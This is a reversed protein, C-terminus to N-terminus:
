CYRAALALRNNPPVWFLLKGSLHVWGDDSLFYEFSLAHSQTFGHFKSRLHHWESKLPEPFWGSKLFVEVFAADWLRVTCDTSGSMIQLGDPSFAVANVSNTHGRLPEGLSQGTEADWLRITNDYSSSVIQLGDPSFAVTTVLGTHGRLPEGLSQGTEANWLRITNDGSGSVIRLGDPSFAVALVAWIHGRLPSGLSQGNEVSWLRVTEDNSGSVIQSGDPSFAVANVSQTHGQLPEGLLQGTSVSWLRITKYNVWHTHGQLPDGSPQGTEANWLQITRQNWSSVIQSGDPSFAVATVSHTSGRLPEGVSEGTERNWLRITKDVSGSVMQLGGPSIAVTTVTDTHGHLSQGLSKGTEANWLRITHDNSGSVLRSGDPSFAVSTVLRTHGRLPEGLSQGSEVDWLRITHDDSGSVIQSGARSFAVTSVMRTHGRLPEGLPQGTEANWLRIETDYSGSVIRSSDPSFAVATVWDTHGSLPEGLTQGTDADWLRITSDYSGSVIRSGDPSFAVASVLRTHGLLPEGLPQGIEADWLRITDDNSGSAIKSGDPSFAVANVSGQHGRFPEGLSQGTEANWLRITEDNSGSAIQSGDPSFAVANVSGTHGRLPEGLSQGTEADWLRITNDESGSLIRLGDPSFAIATVSKTHGRLAEPLGRYREERGNTVNLTNGHMTLGEIHLTSRTPTFPLASIYIHPASEQIPVSFAMMFQRLDTIRCKTEEETTNHIMARLGDIARSVGGVFSLVEMWYLAYPARIIQEIKNGLKSRWEIDAQAIHFPWHLSSYRLNRRISRSIRAELDLFDRNRYFSSEVGCINFKLGEKRSELNNFCWSSLQGHANHIDIYVKNPSRSQAICRRRLYEVLTPHRFQITKTTKDEILVSGLSQVLAKASGGIGTHQLIDDLDYVTPPEFAALLLALMNCLMANHEPPIRELILKYVDDIDGTQDASILRDYIREHSELTAENNLMRCATSAWIFLGSSKEILRQRKDQPLVTYLSQHVYAAIDDVNDRHKIDHLRDELKSKISLPRLVSEIVPDPRSTIFIKVNRSEQVAKALTDLLERRQPGSKCEDIADVILVVREQRHRLPDTILTRFQKELSSRMISPNRKVTDAVHPALEPIHHVLDQWLRVSHGGLTRETRCLTAVSMAVTSKGSGAIDCLWFIPKDSTDDEAWNRITQLVAQRTGQLCTTHVSSPVFAVMPLQFIFSADVDSKTAKTNREIVQVRHGIFLDLAAMFQRHRDEIEQNFKVIMGADIRVDGIATFANRSTRRRNHADNVIACHIDELLEVYHILPQSFAEDVARDEPPYKELSDIQSEVAWMYQELRRVLDNWDGQNDDITQKVDIISKTTRCAATLPALIDSAEAVNAIVDLAISAANQLQDRKSSSRGAATSLDQNPKTSKQPPMALASPELFPTQSEDDQMFMNVIVRQEEVPLVQSQFKAERLSLYNQIYGGNREGSLIGELNDFTRPGVLPGYSM